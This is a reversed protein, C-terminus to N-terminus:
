AHFAEQTAFAPAHERRGHASFVVIPVTTGKGLQSEISFTAGLMDFFTEMLTLGFDLERERERAVLIPLCCCMVRWKCDIM